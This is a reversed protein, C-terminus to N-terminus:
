LVLLFEILEWAMEVSGAWKLAVMVNKRWEIETRYGLFGNPKRDLNAEGRRLLKQYIFFRTREEGGNLKPGPIARPAPVVFRTPVYVTRRRKGHLHFKIQSPAEAM